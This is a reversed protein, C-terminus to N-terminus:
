KMVPFIEPIFFFFFILKTNKQRHLKTKQSTRHNKQHKKTTKMTEPM